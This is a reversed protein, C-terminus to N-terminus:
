ECRFIQQLRALKSGLQKRDVDRVIAKLKERLSKNKSTSHGGAYDGVQKNSRRPSAPIAEGNHFARMKAVADPVNRQVDEMCLYLVNQGRKTYYEFAHLADRYYHDYVVQAYIWVGIQMETDRLIECLNKTSHKYRGQKDVIRRKWFDSGYAPWSLFFHSWAYYDTGPTGKPDGFADLWCERGSKHYLYGSVVSEVINRVFMVVKTNASLHRYHRLEMHCLSSQPCGPMVGPDFGHKECQAISPFLTIRKMVPNHKCQLSVERNAFYTRAIELSLMHGWKHTTMFTLPPLAERQEEKIAGKWFAFVTFLSVALALYVRRRRLKSAKTVAWKGEAGVESLFPAAPM